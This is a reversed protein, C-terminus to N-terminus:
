SLHNWRQKNKIRSVQTQSIGFKLAINRQTEKSNIIEFVQDSNIKAMGGSEGLNIKKNHPKHLGTKYSHSLNESSTVWELNEVRNDTKIGNIHNVQPKNEPNPIFANAVLRHILKSKRINKNYLHIVLYGSKMLNPKLSNCGRSVNGEKDIEYNDFDLIKM